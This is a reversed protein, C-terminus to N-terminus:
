LLFEMILLMILSTNVDYEALLQLIYALCTLMDLLIPDVFIIKISDLLVIM